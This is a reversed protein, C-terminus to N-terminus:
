YPIMKKLLGEMVKVVRESAKGDKYHFAKDLIEDFNPAYKEIFQSAPITISEQLSFLFQEPNKAIAGARDVPKFCFKGLPNKIDIFIIPRHLLMFDFAISSWDTILVDTVSLLPYIDPYDKMPLYVISPCKSIINYFKDKKTPKWLLHPRVLFLIDNKTCMHCISKLLKEQNKWPFLEKKTKHGWTPAYLVVKKHTPLKLLSLIDEKRPKSFLIDNRPYGTIQFIEKKYGKKVYHEKMFESTVCFINPNTLPPTDIGVDKFPIGHWIELRKIAFKGNCILPYIVFKQLLKKKYCRIFDKFGDLRTFPLLGEGHTTVVLKTNSFVQLADLNHYWYAKVGDNEALKAQDKKNSSFYISIQNKLNTKELWRKFSHIVAKINGGYWVSFFGIYIENPKNCYKYLFIVVRFIENIISSIRWKLYQSIAVKIDRWRCKM